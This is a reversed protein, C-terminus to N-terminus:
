ELHKRIQFSKCMGQKGTKHANVHEESKDKKKRMM